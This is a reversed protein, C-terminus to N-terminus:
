MKTEKKGRVSLVSRSRIQYPVSYGGGDKTLFADDKWKPHCRKLYTVLLDDYEYRIPSVIRYTYLATGDDEIVTYGWPTQPLSFRLIREEGNEDTFAEDGMAVSWHSVCTHFIDKYWGDNERQDHGYLVARLNGYRNGCDSVYAYDSTWEGTLVDLGFFCHGAIFFHKYGKAKEVFADFAARRGPDTSIPTYAVNDRRLFERYRSGVDGNEDEDYAYTDLMLIATDHEPFELLYSLTGDPSAFDGARKGFAEQWMKKTYADHNGTTVYYPIGAETLKDLCRRADYVCDYPSKLLTDTIYAAACGSWKDEDSGRIENEYTRFYYQFPKDNNGIDGLILVADIPMKKHEALIGNVMMELKQDNTHGYKVADLTSYPYNVALNEGCCTNHIDGVAFIRM